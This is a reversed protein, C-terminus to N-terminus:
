GAVVKVRLAASGNFRTSDHRRTVAAGGAVADHVAVADRERGPSVSRTSPSLSGSVATLAAAAAALRRTGTM